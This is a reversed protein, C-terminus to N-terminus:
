IGLELWVGPQRKRLFFERACKHGDHRTNIKPHGQSQSHRRGNGEPCKIRWRYKVEEENGQRRMNGTVVNAEIFATAINNNEVETLFESFKLKTVDTKSFGQMYYYLIIIIILSAIWFLYGRPNKQNTDKMNKMNKM